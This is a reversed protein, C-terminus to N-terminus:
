NDLIWFPGGVVAKRSAERMIIRMDWEMGTKRISIPDAVLMNGESTIGRLVIFHGSVTFHGPGMLAIVLKGEALADIIKQGDAATAGTVSLGFHRAGDPILAHYSGNGEAVYGNAYSWDAMGKPDIATDTLTAVVMALATPGCGAIAITNTKGYMENGWREDAQNYYVVEQDGNSFVLDGYNPLEGTPYDPDSPDVLQTDNINTYFFRAWEKQFMSFGLREMLADPSITWISIIIRTRTETIPNGNEDSGVTEEWTEVIYSYDLNKKVLARVSNEDIREMEQEHIVSSIATLWNRSVGGLDMHVVVEDYGDSLAAVIKDAEEQTFSEIREYLGNIYVAQENMAVIEAEDVSPWQFFINPLAFYLISPLLLLALIVAIAVKILQPAFANAAAVGAGHLGGGIAGKVTDAVGKALKVTKAATNGKQEQQSM